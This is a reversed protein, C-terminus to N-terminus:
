RSFRRYQADTFGPTPSRFAYGVFKEKELDFGRLRPQVLEIHLFLGKKGRHLCTEFKTATSAVDFGKNQFAEGLRNVFLHAGKGSFNSLDNVAPNDNINDPFNIVSKFGYKKKMAHLNKATDHIVFYKAIVGGRTRSVPDFVSGGVENEDVDISELYAVFDDRDIDVEFDLLVSLAYPLDDRYSGVNGKPLVPALLCLAEDYESADHAVFKGSSEFFECYPQDVKLRECAPLDISSVSFVVCIVFKWNVM